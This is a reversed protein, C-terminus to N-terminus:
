WPRLIKALFYAEKSALPFVWQTITNLSEAKDQLKLNETGTSNSGHKAKNYKAAGFLSHPQAPAPCLELFELTKVPPFLLHTRGIGSPHM